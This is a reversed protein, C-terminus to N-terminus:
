DSAIAPRGGPSPALGRQDLVPVLMIPVSSQSLVERVTRAHGPSLDQSWGLAILDIDPRRALDTVTLGPEGAVLELHAGETQCFRELFEGGWEEGEHQPQDWFAPITSSDFVHLVVIDIGRGAFVEATQEVARASMTTGNLPVLVRGPADSDPLRFDPPVLVIPKDVQQVVDLAVHGAPRQGAPHSRAGLVGAMVDPSRLARVIEDLPVGHRVQFPVELSEAVARATVAHDEVVNLAQLPVQLKRALRIAAELTPRAAASNDIAAIIRSM